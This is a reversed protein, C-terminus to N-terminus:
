PVTVEADGNGVSVSLVASGDGIVLGPHWGDPLEVDGNGRSVELAVNKPMQTFHVSLDGNDAQLVARELIRGISVGADGNEVSLEVDKVQLAEIWLDGNSARMTVPGVVDGAIIVCDGNDAQLDVRGTVTEGRVLLTGNKTALSIDAGISEAKVVLVGTQTGGVISGAVPAIRSLGLQDQILLSDLLKEPVQIRVVQVLHDQAISVYKPAPSGTATIRLTGDQVEAALAIPDEDSVGVQEIVIEGEGSAELVIGCLDSHIEISSVLSADFAEFPVAENERAAGQTRLTQVTDEQPVINPQQGIGIVAAELEEEGFLIFAGTKGNTSITRQFGELPGGALSGLPLLICLVGLLITAAKKM